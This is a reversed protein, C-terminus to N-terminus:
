SFQQQPGGASRKPLQPLLLDIYAKIAAEKQRIPKCWPHLLKPFARVMACAQVLVEPAQGSVTAFVYYTIITRDPMYWNKYVYRHRREQCHITLTYGSVSQGVLAELQGRAATTDQVEGPGKIWEIAAGLPNLVQKLM